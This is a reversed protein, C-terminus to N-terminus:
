FTIIEDTLNLDDNITKQIMKGEKNKIIFPHNSTVNIKRGDELEVEYIIDEKESIIMCQDNELNGTDLNLSVCNYIKNKELDKLKINVYNDITGIRIEENEALCEEIIVCKIKEKGGELSISSCFNLLKNRVIDINADQRANIMLTPHDKALIRALSSKGNGPHGWLLLNQILGKSVEKRIREPIILSSLEKPRFKETFLKNTVSM